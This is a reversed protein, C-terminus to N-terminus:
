DRNNEKKVVHFNLQAKAKRKLGFNIPKIWYYKTEWRTYMVFETKIKKRIPNILSTRNENQVGDWNAKIAANHIMDRGFMLQCPTAQLTTHYTSRIAWATSQLLYDFPNDEDSNENELDCSHTSAKIIASAKPNHSTTPKAKIGYNECMRKFMKGHKPAGKHNSREWWLKKHDKHHYAEHFLEPDTEPTENTKM